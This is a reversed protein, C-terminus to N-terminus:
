YRDSSKPQSVASLSHFYNPAPARNHSDKISGNYVDLERMRTKDPPHYTLITLNKPNCKTQDVNLQFIVCYYERTM